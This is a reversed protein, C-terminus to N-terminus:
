RSIKTCVKSCLATKAAKKLNEYNIKKLNIEAKIFDLHEKTYKCGGNYFYM